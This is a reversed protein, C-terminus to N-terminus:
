QPDLLPAYIWGGVDPCHLWKTERSNDEGQVSGDCIVTEGPSLTVVRRGTLTNPRSRVSVFGDSTARVIYRRAMSAGDSPTLLTAYVYGGVEPCHRWQSEQSPSQGRVPADCVIRTGGNLRRVQASNTTPRARVAVFGDDTQTVTYTQGPAEKEEVRVPESPGPEALVLYGARTDLRWPELQTLATQGLLLPSDVGGVSGRINRIIRSGIQLQRFNVQTNAILSGDAQTYQASGLVDSNDITGTRILTLAVDAPIVVDSAGSDLLFNLMLAGNIKVPVSYVGGVRTVSVTEPSAQSFSCFALLLFVLLLQNM